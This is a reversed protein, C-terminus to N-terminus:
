SIEEGYTEVETIWERRGEIIRVGFFQRRFKFLQEQGENRPRPLSFSFKKKIGQLARSAPDDLPLNSFVQIMEEWSPVGAIEGTDEDYSVMQCLTELRRLDFRIFELSQEGAFVREYWCHYSPYSRCIWPQQPTGHVACLGTDAELNQCSRAYFLMWTGDDKLGLEFWRHRLFELLSKLDSRTRVKIRELPLRRCCPTGVCTFCPNESM